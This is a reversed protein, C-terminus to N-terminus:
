VVTQVTCLMNDKLYSSIPNNDLEPICTLQSLEPSYLSLTCSLSRVVINQTQSFYVESGGAIVLLELKVSFLDSPSTINAPILMMIVFGINGFVLIYDTEIRSDSEMEANKSEKEYFHVTNM